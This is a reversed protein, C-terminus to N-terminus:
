ARDSTQMARAEAKAARLRRELAARAAAEARGAGNNIRLRMRGPQAPRDRCPGRLLQDVARAELSPLSPRAETLTSPFIKPMKYGLAALAAEGDEALRPQGPERMTQQAAASDLARALERSKRGKPDTGFARFAERSVGEPLVAVFQRKRMPNWFFEVNGATKAFITHDKGIGVTDGRLVPHYKTGRQRLIIEGVQVFTGGSRKIGLRKSESDRGNKSSGGAKKSAFRVPVAMPAPGPAAAAATARAAPGARTWARAAAARM